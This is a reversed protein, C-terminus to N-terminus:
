PKRLVAMTYHHEVPENKQQLCEDFFSAVEPNNQIPLIADFGALIGTNMLWSLSIGDHLEIAIRGEIHWKTQLGATKAQQELKRPSAPFRPRIVAQLKEPYRQMTKRFAIQIPRLTDRLNVVYAFCGGPSLVRGAEKLVEAPISYGIAWASVVLDASGAPRSKLFALMDGCHFTIYESTSRNRAVDLMGQSIDQADIPANPHKTALVRTTYGTGCGLDLIRPNDLVPLQNLLDDSVPQLQCLWSKEYNRSLATYSDAVNQSNIWQGTLALKAARLNLRLCNKYRCDM